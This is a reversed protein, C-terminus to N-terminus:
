VYNSLVPTERGIVSHVKTVFPKKSLLSSNQRKGTGM